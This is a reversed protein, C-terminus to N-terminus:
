KKKQKKKDLIKKVVLYTICGLEVLIILLLVILLVNRWNM